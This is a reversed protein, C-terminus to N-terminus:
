KLNMFQGLETWYIDSYTANKWRDRRYFFLYKGDPSVRPGLEEHATNVKPGLNHPESWTGDERRYSVYIDIGGHGGKKASAFVIFSEDPSVAPDGADDDNIAGKLLEPEKYAGNAVECRYIRGNNEGRNRTSGFYLTGNAAVSPSWEAAVSNIPAPLKEAASWGGDDMRKAVWLDPPYDAVFFLRKGDPSLFPEGIFRGKAFSFGKVFSPIETLTRGDETTSLRVITEYNWNKSDTLGCYYERGDASLTVSQQMRGPVSVIGKAFLRVESGPASEGFYFPAGSASLCSAALVLFTLRKEFPM